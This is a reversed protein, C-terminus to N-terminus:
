TAEDVPAPIVITVQAGGLSSRRLELHGGHRDVLQSVTVLGLSSRGAASAGFGPGSDGVSVCAVDDDGYMSVVVKGDPGAARCGNEILNVLSREWEVEDSYIAWSPTGSIETDIDGGYGIRMREVVDHILAGLDVQAPPRARDLQRQCMEAMTRVEAEILSLEDHGRGTASGSARMSAVVAQVIAVPQLLDHAFRRIELSPQPDSRDSM